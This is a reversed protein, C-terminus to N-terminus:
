PKEVTESYEIGAVRALVLSKRFFYQMIPILAQIFSDMKFEVFYAAVM